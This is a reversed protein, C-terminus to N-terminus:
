QDLKIKKKCTPCEIYKYHEIGCPGYEGGNVKWLEEPVNYLETKGTQVEGPLYSVVCGCNKCIAVKSLDKGQKIIEM